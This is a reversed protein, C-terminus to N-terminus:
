GAFDRYDLEEILSQVDALCVEVVSEQEVEELPAQQEVVFSIEEM